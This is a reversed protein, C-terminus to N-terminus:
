RGLLLSARLLLREQWSVREGRILMLAGEPSSIASHRSGAPALMYDGARYRQGRHELSGELLFCEEDQSHPHAPIRSGPAMRWLATQMGHVADVHLLKVEIGPLFRRWDSTEGRVVEMEQGARALLRDRMRAKRQEDLPAQRSRMDDTLDTM